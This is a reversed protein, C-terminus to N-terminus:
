EIYKLLQKSFFPRTKLLLENSAWVFLVHSKNVCVMYEGASHNRKRIIGIGYACSRAM